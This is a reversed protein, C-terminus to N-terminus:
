VSEGVREVVKEKRTRQAVVIGCIILGSGVVIGVSMEEGLLFASFILGFIPVLLTAITATAMDIMSLIFYWVTFCLASAFIGAFLIYYFSHVNLQVPDGWEMVMAAIIIGITGFTMQYASAQVKHLAQLHLRYYINSIAWVIAAMVILLEGIISQLKQETWIDWGLISLLGIMGIILGVIQKVTLKEELFRIALLSSWMPMSYLLVSSKGADVFGLGYMVLIFVAATQLLGVIVLPKWYKKPPVGLKLIFVIALLTLSGIGFRFANFTFPGMYALVEKMVVWGYGWLVTIIIVLLGLTWKNNPLISKKNM